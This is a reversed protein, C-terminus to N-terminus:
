RKVTFGGGGACVVRSPYYEVTGKTTGTARSATVFNGTIKLKGSATYGAHHHKAPYHHKPFVARFSFKGTSGISSHVRAPVKGHRPSYGITSHYGNSCTLRLSFHVDVLRKGNASVAFSIKKGQSTRGSYHGGKTPRAALASAAVLLTALATFLGVVLTKRRSPRLPGWDGNRTGM